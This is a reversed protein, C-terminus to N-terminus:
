NKVQLWIEPSSMSIKGSFFFSSITSDKPSRIKPLVEKFLTLFGKVSSIITSSPTTISSSIIAAISSSGISLTSTREANVQSDGFPIQAM